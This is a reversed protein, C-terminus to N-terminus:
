RPPRQSFSIALWNSEVLSTEMTLGAEETARLLEEEQDDLIGSLVLCHNGAVVDALGESLLRVLISTYLNAVVLNPKGRGEFDRKIADLSGQKITIHEAVENAVSNRLAAEIASDGVDYAWVHEAGLKVAAISLIGSGCGLDVMKDGPKLIREMLALSLRTTPHTGTGFAMGPDLLIIERETEGMEIWSPQILLRNGIEIPQFHERWSTQWDEEELDRFLVPPLPQIRGLFWLGEHIKQAREEYNPGHRLYTRVIVSGPPQSGANESGLIVAGEGHRSFLEAIPEAQEGDVIIQVEVWKM